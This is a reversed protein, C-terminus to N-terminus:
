LGFLDIAALSTVSFFTLPCRDYRTAVRRGNKFSGFM